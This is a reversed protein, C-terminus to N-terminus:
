GADKAKEIRYALRVAEACAGHGRAILADLQEQDTRTERAAQRVKAGEQRARTKPHTCVHSSEGLGKTPKAM